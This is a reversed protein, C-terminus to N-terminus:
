PKPPLTVFGFMGTGVTPMTTIMANRYTPGTCSDPKSGRPLHPDLAPQFAEYRTASPLRKTNQVRPSSVRWFRRANSPSFKRGRPTVRQSRPESPAPLSAKLPGYNSISYRAVM